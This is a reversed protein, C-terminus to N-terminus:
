GHAALKSGAPVARGAGVAREAARRGAAEGTALAADALHGEDGLWDGAVFVNDVGTDGVCPRGALGGGAPTPMAGCAVMRHLYRAEEAAEPDVGALRCHEELDARVEAASPDESAHLYRMTQVVSAGAPALDTPPAHCSFYLPRDLGFVVNRPPPAALGLDLCAIRVPAGLRDWAPPRAPLLAGCAHPPGAAVVATRAVIAREGAPDAVTVLVRAGDPEVATAAAEVGEVGAHAGARTLGSLLSGWGGDLYDVGGISGLRLQAAVLDASVLDLDAIYATTRALMEVVEREDGDLGLEDLWASGTRDALQEPRWRWMGALVRVLRLKGRTSVLRSRTSSVPGVPLRDVLDGRRGYTGSTAARSGSVAVGLRDLVARGAGRRYLAHAGRNFRFRGVRDTGARNAGPRGDLVVVSCGARAATAAAALGALGGGIVVVDRQEHTM